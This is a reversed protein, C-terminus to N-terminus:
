IQFAFNPVKWNEFFLLNWFTVHLNRVAMIENDDVARIQHQLLTEVAIPEGKLTVFEVEYAQGKNYITIITGVDGKKLRSNPVDQELVVLDYESM